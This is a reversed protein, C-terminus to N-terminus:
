VHAKGIQQLAARKVSIGQIAAIEPKIGRITLTAFSLLWTRM